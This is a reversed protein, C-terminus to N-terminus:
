KKDNLEIKTDVIYEKKVGPKNILLIPLNGFGEGFSKPDIRAFDIFLLKITQKKSLKVEM